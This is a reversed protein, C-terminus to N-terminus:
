EMKDVYLYNYPSFMIVTEYNGMNSGTEMLKDFYVTGNESLYMKTAYVDKYGGKALYVKWHKEM